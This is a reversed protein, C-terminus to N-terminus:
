KNNGNESICREFLLDAGCLSCEGEGKIIVDKQCNECYLKVKEKKAPSFTNNNMNEISCEYCIGSYLNYEWHRIIKGCIKCNDAM